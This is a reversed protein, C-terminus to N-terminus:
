LLVTYTGKKFDDIVKLAHSEQGAPIITKAFEIYGDAEKKEGCLALCTALNVIVKFEKPSLAKAMVWLIMAERYSKSDWRKMARVHWGFWSKPSNLCSYEVLFYDDKFADMYFWMRTAYMTIFATCVIPYPAIVTALVYMLGMNPLYCYREAIEQNMRFLNLYPAIGVCWLLLGFSILNWDHTGIYVGMLGLSGVGAWFYRDLTYANAVKSGAISELLSHYFTNRFPILSHTIYFGFTKTALILKKLKFKKDEDYMENKVRAVVNKKFNKWQFAWIIPLFICLFPYPSGLLALPSLFGANYYTALYLFLPGIVPISLAWVLGLASLAYGRGAIWVAVQNNIPNFSFLLAALFSVDTQGFGIYIGVCVLSHIITTIIHDYQPKSRASGELVLFWHKWKNDNKPRNFAPIDDSAYLYRCTKLYFLLNVLLIICIKEFLAEEM